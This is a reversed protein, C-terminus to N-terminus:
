EGYMTLLGSSVSEGAPNKAIVTYRGTDAFRADPIKLVHTGDGTVELIYHESSTLERGNCTRFYFVLRKSQTIPSFKVASKSSHIM